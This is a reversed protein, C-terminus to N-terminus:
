ILNSGTCELIGHWEETGTVVDHDFDSMLNPFQRLEIREDVEAPKRTTEGVLDIVLFGIAIRWIGHSKGFMGASSIGVTGAMFTVITPDHSLLM